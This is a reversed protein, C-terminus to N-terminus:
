EGAGKALAKSPHEPAEWPAEGHFAGAYLEKSQLVELLQKLATSNRPGELVGKGDIDM